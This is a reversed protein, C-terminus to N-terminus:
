FACSDPHSGLRGVNDICDLKIIDDNDLEFDFVEANEKIRSPTVSKPLPAYGKALCWKLLIQAGTKNHKAAIEKVLPETFATGKCIPSWAELVIEREKCYEVTDAQHYGIHLEIQNAMPLIEQETKLTELHNVLFNSVGIARVAGSKYLEELAHWSELMEKPYSKRYSYAIPWHILYLDLYNTKLKKLSLEFAKLTRDRGHDTNWLKTTLFIDKREVGSAIIGEGVSEENEYAAATDIHRYGTEIAAVVGDVCIKGNPTRWTGYGICPLKVGNHMIYGDTLSKM